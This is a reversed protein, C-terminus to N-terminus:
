QQIRSKRVEEIGTVNKLHLNSKTQLGASFNVMEEVCIIRTPALLLYSIYKYLQIINYVKM